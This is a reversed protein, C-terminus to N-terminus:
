RSSVPQKSLWERYGEEAAERNLRIREDIEERYSEYYRLAISVQYPTVSTAGLPERSRINWTDDWEPFVDIIEWVDPGNALGARRGTAGPRFVIGPHQEMRLGEDILRRALESVTERERRSQAELHRHLDESIRLTLHRSAM